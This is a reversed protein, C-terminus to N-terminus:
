AAITPTEAQAEEQGSEVLLRAQYRKQLEIYYEVVKQPSHDCKQSIHHRTERIRAIAPDNKLKM